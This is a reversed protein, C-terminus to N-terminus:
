STLIIYFIGWGAIAFRQGLFLGANRAYFGIGDVEKSSGATGGHPKFPQSSVQPPVMITAELKEKPNCGGRFPRPLQPMLKGM